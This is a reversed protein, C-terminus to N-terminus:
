FILMSSTLYRIRLIGTLFIRETPFLCLNLLLFFLIEVAASASIVSNLMQLIRILLSFNSRGYVQTPRKHINKVLYAINITYSYTGKRNNNLCKKLNCKMRVINNSRTNDSDRM